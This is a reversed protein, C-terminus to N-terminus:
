RGFRQGRQIKLFRPGTSSGPTLAWRPRCARITTCQVLPLVFLGFACSMFIRLSGVSPSILVSTSSQFGASCSSAQVWFPDHFTNKQDLDKWLWPILDFIPVPLKRGGLSVIFLRLRTQRPKATRGNGSPPEFGPTVRPCLAMKHGRLSSFAKCARSDPHASGM